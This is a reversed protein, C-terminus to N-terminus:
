SSIESTRQTGWIYLLAANPLSNTPQLGYYWNEASHWAGIPPYQYTESMMQNTFIERPLADKGEIKEIRSLSFLQNTAEIKKAIEKVFYQNANTLLNM